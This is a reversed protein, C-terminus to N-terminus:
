SRVTLWRWVDFSASVALKALRATLGASSKPALAVFRQGPLGVRSANAVSLVELLAPVAGFVARIAEAAHPGGIGIRQTVESVDAITVNSRLVCMRLRKAVADAIDSALLMAFRDHAMDRWLVFNALMRGKPSNFS